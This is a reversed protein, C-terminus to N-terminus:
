SVVNMCVCCRNKTEWASAEFNLKQFSDLGVSVQFLCLIDCACICIYIYISISRAHTFLHVHM